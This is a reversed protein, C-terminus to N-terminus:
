LPLSLRGLKGPRLHTGHGQGAFELRKAQILEKAGSFAIFWYGCWVLSLLIMGALPYFMYWPRKATSAM